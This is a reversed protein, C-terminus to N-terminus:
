LKRLAKVQAVPLLGSSLDLGQLSRILLDSREPVTKKDMAHSIQEIHDRFDQGVRLMKHSQTSFCFGRDEWISWGQVLGKDEKKKETDM